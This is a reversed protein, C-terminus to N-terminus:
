DYKKLYEKAKELLDLSDKFGGLAQNCHICLLARVKGTTHCHDVALNRGSPCEQSCIACKNSQQTALIEYEELTIGFKYQLQYERIEKKRSDRYIKNCVKCYYNTGDKRDGKAFEKVDKELKCKSCYSM